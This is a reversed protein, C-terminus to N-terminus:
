LDASDKILRAPFILAGTLCFCFIGCKFKLFVDVVHSVTIDQLRRPSESNRREAMESAWQNFQDELRESWIYEFQIKWGPPSVLADTAASLKSKNSKGQCSFIPTQKSAGASINLWLPEDRQPWECFTWGQHASPFWLFDILLSLSRSDVWSIRNTIATSKISHNCVACVCVCVCM